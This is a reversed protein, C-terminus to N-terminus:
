CLALMAPEDLISLVFFTGLQYYTSEIKDLPTALLKPLAIAKM